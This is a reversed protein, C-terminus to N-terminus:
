EAQETRLIRRVRTMFASITNARKGHQELFSRVNWSKPPQFKLDKTNQEARRDMKICFSRPDIKPATRLIIAAGEYCPEKSRHPRKRISPIGQQSNSGTSSQPVPKPQKALALAADGAAGKVASELILVYHDALKDLWNSSTEPDNREWVKASDYPRFRSPKMILLSPAQWKRWFIQEERDEDPDYRHEDCVDRVWLRIRHRQSRILHRTQYEAWEVHPRNLRGENARSIGLLENFTHLAQVKVGELYFDFFGKFIAPLTGQTLLDHFRQTAARGIRSKLQVLAKIYDSIDEFGSKHAGNHLQLYCLPMTVLIGFTSHASEFSDRLFKIAPILDAPINKDWPEAGENDWLSM